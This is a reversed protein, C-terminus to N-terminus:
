VTEGLKGLRISNNTSRYETEDDDSDIDNPYHRNQYARRRLIFVNFYYKVQDDWRKQPIAKCMPEWFCKQSFRPNERIVRGFKKEEEMTWSLSCDEGMKDFSWAYYASRLEFMIKKRRQSVHFKVCEVSAPFQCGCDDVRGKGIPDREIPQKNKANELPWTRTGLWKPDSEITLGTWKPVDAIGLSIRQRSLPRPCITSISPTPRIDLRAELQQRPPMPNVETPYCTSTLMKEFHNFLFPHRKQKKQCGYQGASYRGTQGVCDRQIKKLFLSERALLAQNGYLAWRSCELTKGIMSATPEKAVNAMWQLMESSCDRKRKHSSIEKSVGIDVNILEEEIEISCKKSAVSNESSIESKAQKTNELGHNEEVICSNSDVAINLIRNRSKLCKENGENSGEYVALVKEFKERDLEKSENEVDMDTLDIFSIGSKELNFVCYDDRRRKMDGIESVYAGYDKELEGLTKKDLEVLWTEFSSLYQAYILKFASGFSSVSGCQLGVEGWWNNESIFEFGGKQKVVLYLKLLDVCQGNGLRPPLPRFCYNGYCDRLFGSVLEIFYSQMKLEKSKITENYQNLCSNDELESWEAM